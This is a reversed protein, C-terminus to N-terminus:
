LYSVYISGKIATQISWPSLGLAKVEDMAERYARTEERIQDINESTIITGGQFCRSADRLAKLANESRVLQEQAQNPTTM